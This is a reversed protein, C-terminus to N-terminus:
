SVVGSDFTLAFSSSSPSGGDAFKTAETVVGDGGISYIPSGNYDIALDLDNFGMDNSDSIDIWQNNVQIQLKNTTSNFQLPVSGLTINGSQVVLNNKVKFDRNTTAV